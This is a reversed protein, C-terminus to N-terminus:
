SANLALRTPNGPFWGLLKLRDIAPLAIRIAPFVFM